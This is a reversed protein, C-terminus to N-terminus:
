EAAVAPIPWLRDNMPAEGLTRKWILFRDNPCRDESPLNQGM